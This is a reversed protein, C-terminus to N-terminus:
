YECECEGIESINVRVIYTDREIWRVDDYTEKAYKWSHYLRAKRLQKNWKNYGCFYENTNRDKVAFVTDKTENNM